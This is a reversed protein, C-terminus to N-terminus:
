FPAPSEVLDVPGQGSYLVEGSHKVMVRWIEGEQTVAYAEAELPLVTETPFAGGARGPPTCMLTPYSWPANIPM